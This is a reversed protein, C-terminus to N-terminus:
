YSIDLFFDGRGPIKWRQSGPGAFRGEELTVVKDVLDGGQEIKGARSRLRVTVRPLM